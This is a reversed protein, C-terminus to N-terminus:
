QTNRVLTVGLVIAPPAGTNIAVPIALKNQTLTVHLVIRAGPIINLAQKAEATHRTFPAVATM